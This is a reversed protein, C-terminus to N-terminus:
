DLTGLLELFDAKGIGGEVRQLVAGHTDTIMTTPTARVPYRNLTTAASPDGVDIIVPVFRANVVAAVQEDAWVNRKMIRCPVCWKGTFFLIIPRGSQVAQEQASAYDNAWAIDNSPAYFSYWAYGLSAVLTVWWFWRWLWLFRGRQPQSAPNNPPPSQSQTDNM